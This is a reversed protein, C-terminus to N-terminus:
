IHGRRRLEQECQLPNEFRITQIGFQAAATLNAEIDDIFVTGEATLDYTKLLYEYIAPEPKCLNLRCSIVKGAFLEWFDYAKELHEISAFAMNSLCYLRHGAANLRRILEVTQPVVVLEAPVRRLFNMVAAESLGTRRAAREAATEQSLTGRDLELWDPHMMIERQVRARTEPDAFCKAVISEPQWKVVVGGLDFVINL